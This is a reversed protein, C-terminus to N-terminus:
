RCIAPERVLVRSCPSAVLRGACLNPVFFLYYMRLLVALINKQTETKSLAQITLFQNFLSGATLSGMMSLVISFSDPMETCSLCEGPFQDRAWERSCRGCILGEHGEACINGGLCVSGNIPTTTRCEEVMAPIMSVMYYQPESKPMSHEWSYNATGNEDLYTINEFGGLCEVGMSPCADCAIRASTSESLASPARTDNTEKSPIGM